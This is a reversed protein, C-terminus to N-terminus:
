FLDISFCNITKSFESKLISESKQIKRKINLFESKQIKGNINLIRIKRYKMIKNLIRIRINKFWFM